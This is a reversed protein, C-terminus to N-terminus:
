VSSLIRSVTRNDGYTLLEVETGAKIDKRFEDPINIEFTEFTESDMLQVRNEALSVM